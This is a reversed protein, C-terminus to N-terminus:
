GIGLGRLAGELEAFRFSYGAKQLATPVVRTSALLLDDAMEGLALRAGFAPIPIVTPRSLVKGLTKTYERNTVPNPAVANIPGEIADNEIAFLIMGVADDVTVWSMYQDGGGLVGGVGLKFPLLM